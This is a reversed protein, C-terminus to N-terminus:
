KSANTTHTTTAPAETTSAVPATSTAETSTSAGGTTASVTPESNSATPTSEAAATAQAEETTAAIEATSEHPSEIVPSTPGQASPSVGRARTSIGFREGLRTSLRRRRRNEVDEITPSSSGEDHVRRLAEIREQPSAEEM